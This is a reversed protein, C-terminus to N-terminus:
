EELRITRPREVWGDEGDPVIEIVTIRSDTVSTVRGFNKGMHDGEVVRNVTGSPDKILAQLPDGSRTITGVMKLSEISFRELYEKSRAFDPEVQKGEPVEVTEQEEMPPSFPSRLQHASYSFTAIPKFEPPPEIRGRPRERIEELKRELKAMESGDGCGTVLVAMVLGTLPLLTTKRMTIGGMM